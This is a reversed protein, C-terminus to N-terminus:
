GRMTPNQLLISVGGAGMSSFGLDAVALDPIGDGNIDGIAVKLPQAGVHFDSEHFTAPMSTDQLLVAIQNKPTLASALDNRGDGDVDAIAVSGAEGNLAIDVPALFTGPASSSDQFLIKLNRANAAIAIDPLGDGNLDGIAIDAQAIGISIRSEPLF